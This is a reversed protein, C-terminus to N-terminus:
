DTPVIGCQSKNKVLYEHIASTLEDGNIAKNAIEKISELFSQEWVENSQNIDPSTLTTFNVKKINDLLMRPNNRYYSAKKWRSINLQERDNLVARIFEYAIVTFATHWNSMNIDYQELITVIEDYGWIFRGSDMKATNICTVFYEVLKELSFDNSFYGAFM